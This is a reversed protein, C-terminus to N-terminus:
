ELEILVQGKEVTQGAVVAIKKIIAATSIVICNEMKMAELILMKDGENVSQGSTVAIELVKGPMPAKIEKIHKNTTLGFGMKELIEDMEDKVSVEFSEGDVEITFNKSALDAYLVKANLSQTEQLLNYEGTATQIIDAAAAEAETFSFEFENAKVKFANKKDPMTCTKRRPCAPYFGNKLQGATTIISIVFYYIILMLQILTVQFM